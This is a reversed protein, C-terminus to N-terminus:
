IVKILNKTEAKKICWAYHQCNSLCEREVKKSCINGKNFVTFYLTDFLNMIGYFAKKVDESVAMVEVKPLTDPPYEKEVERETPEPESRGELKSKILAAAQATSETVSIGAKVLVTPEPQKPEEKVVPKLEPKAIVPPVSSPTLKSPVREKRNRSSIGAFSHKKGAGGM